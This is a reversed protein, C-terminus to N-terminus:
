KVVEWVNEESPGSSVTTGTARILNKKHLTSLNTRVISLKIGSRDALQRATGQGRSLESLVQEPRTLKKNSVRKGVMKNWFERIM